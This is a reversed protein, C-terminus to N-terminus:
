FGVEKEKENIFSTLRYVIMFVLFTGLLVEQDFIM